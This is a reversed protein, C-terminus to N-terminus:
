FRREGDPVLEGAAAGEEREGSAAAKGDLPAPAEPCHADLWEVIFNYNLIWVPEGRLAHRLVGWKFPADMALKLQPISLRRAARYGALRQLDAPRLVKSQRGGPM